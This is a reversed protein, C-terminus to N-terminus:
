VEDHIVGVIKRERRERKEVGGGRGGCKRKRETHVFGMEMEKKFPQNVCSM